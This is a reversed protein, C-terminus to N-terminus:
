MMSIGAVNVRRNYLIKSSTKTKKVKKKVVKTKKESGFTMRDFIDM